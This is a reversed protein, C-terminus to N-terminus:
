FQELAAQGTEAVRVNSISMHGLYDAITKLAVKSDEVVRVKFPQNRMQAIHKGHPISSLLSKLTQKSSM